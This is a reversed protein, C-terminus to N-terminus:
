FTTQDENEDLDCTLFFFCLTNLSIVCLIYYDKMKKLMGMLCKM